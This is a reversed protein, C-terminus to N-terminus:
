SDWYVLHALMALALWMERVFKQATEQILVLLLRLLLVALSHMIIKTGMM